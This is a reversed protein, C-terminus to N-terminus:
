IRSGRFHIKGYLHHHNKGKNRNRWHSEVARGSLALAYRTDQVKIVTVNEPLSVEEMVVIAAAGKEAAQPVFGHGDAVAGKVCIFLSDKTVKRSDYVLDTISIDLDGQLLEYDIRELLKKLKIM